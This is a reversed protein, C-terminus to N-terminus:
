LFWRAAKREQMKARILDKTLRLFFLTDGVSESSLKCNLYVSSFVSQLAMHTKRAERPFERMAIFDFKNKAKYSICLKRYPLFSSAPM